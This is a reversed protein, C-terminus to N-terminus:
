RLRNDRSLTSIIASTCVGRSWFFDSDSCYSSKLLSGDEICIIQGMLKIARALFFSKLLSFCALPTVAHAITTLILLCSLLSYSYEKGSYSFFKSVM